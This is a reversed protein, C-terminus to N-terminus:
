EDIIANSVLLTYANNTALDMLLKEQRADLTITKGNSHRIGDITNVIDMYIDISKKLNRDYLKNNDNPLDRKLNEVYNSVKKLIDKKEGIDYLPNYYDLFLKSINAPLEETNIKLAGEKEILEKNEIKYMGDLDHLLLNNIANIYNFDNFRLSDTQVRAILDCFSLVDDLELKENYTINYSYGGRYESEVLVEITNISNKKLLKTLSLGRKQLKLDIQALGDFNAMLMDRLNIAFDEESEKVWNRSDKKSKYLKM